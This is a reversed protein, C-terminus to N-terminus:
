IPKSHVMNARNSKYRIHLTVYKDIPQIYETIGLNCVNTPVNSAECEKAAAPEVVESAEKSLPESENVDEDGPVATECKEAAAHEITGEFSPEQAPQQITSTAVTKKKKKKKGLNKPM